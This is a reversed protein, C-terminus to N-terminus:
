LGARPSSLPAFAIPTGTAPAAFRRYASGGREALAVGLPTRELTVEGDRVPVQGGQSAPREGAVVAPASADGVRVLLRAGAPAPLATLTTELNGDVDVYAVCRAPVRPVAEHPVVGTNAHSHRNDAHAIAEPLGVRPRQTMEGPTVDVCHLESLVPIAFSWTWGVNVGVVLAGTRSRAVCFQEGSRQPWPGPDGRAPAVDHAVVVEDAGAAGSLAARAVCFGGALTDGPEVLELNVVSGPLAIALRELTQVVAEDEADCDTILHVLPAM